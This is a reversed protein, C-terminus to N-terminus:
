NREGFFIGDEKCTRYMFVEGEGEVGQRAGIEREREEGVL